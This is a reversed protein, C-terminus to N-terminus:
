RVITDPPRSPAVRGNSAGLMIGILATDSDDGDQSRFVRHAVLGACVTLGILVALLNTISGPLPEYGGLLAGSTIGAMMGIAGGGLLLQLISPGTFLRIRSRGQYATILFYGNSQSTAAQVQVENRAAHYGYAGVPGITMGTLVSPGGGVADMFQNELANVIAIWDRDSEIVTQRWTAM